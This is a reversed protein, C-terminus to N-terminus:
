LCSLSRMGYFSAGLSWSFVGGGVVPAAARALSVLFQALSYCTSSLVGLSNPIIRAWCYSGPSPPPTEFPM